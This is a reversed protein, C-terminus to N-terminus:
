QKKRDQDGLLNSSHRRKACDFLAPLSRDPLPQAIQLAREYQGSEAYAIAVKELLDTPSPIEALSHNTMHRAFVLAREFKGSELARNIISVFSEAQWMTETVQNLFQLSQETRDSQALAKALETLISNQYDKSLHSRLSLAIDIQGHNLYSRMADYYVQALSSDPLGKVLEIARDPRDAIALKDAIDILTKQQLTKEHIREIVKLAIPLRDLTANAIAIVNWARDQEEISQMASAIAEAQTLLSSLLPIEEADLSHRRPDGLLIPTLVQFRKVPDEITDLLPMATEIGLFEIWSAAIFSVYRSMEPNPNSRIIQWSQAFLQRKKAEGQELLTNKEAIPLIDLEYKSLSMFVSGAMVSLGAVRVIPERINNVYQLSRSYLLDAKDTQGVIRYQWSLKNLNSVYDWTANNRKAEIIQLSQDLLAIAKEQQDLARFGKAADLLYNISSYSDEQRMAELGMLLAAEAQKPQNLFIALMGLEKLLESKSPVISLNRVKAPTVDQVQLLAIARALLPIAKDSEKAEVHIRIIQILGWAQLQPFQKDPMGDLLQLLLRDQKARQYHDLLYYFSQYQNSVDAIAQIREQYCLPPIGGQTPIWPQPIDAFGVMPLSNGLLFVSLGGIASMRKSLKM